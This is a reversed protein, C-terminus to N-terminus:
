KAGTGGDAPTPHPNANRRFEGHMEISARTYAEHADEPTDFYGLFHRVGGLRIRAQWKKDTKHFSVGKFGSSNRSCVKRNIANQARTAPRLNAPRNDSRDGNIHDIDAEPWAGTMMAWIVRHATVNRGLVMGRPYGQHTGTMAERNADRSNWAACRQSPNKATAFMDVPRPLWFLKGTEPECRLIKRLVEVSPLEKVM